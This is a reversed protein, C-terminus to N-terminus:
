ACVFMGTVILVDLAIVTVGPAGISKPSHNSRSEVAVPGSSVPKVSTISAVSPDIVSELTSPPSPVSSVVRKLRVAPVPRPVISTEVGAAAVIFM